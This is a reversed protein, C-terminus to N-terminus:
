KGAPQSAYHAALADITAEGFPLSMKHMASSERRDDRYARLAMVLYDKDQGGLKPTPMAPKGATDGHCRDCKAILQAVQDQGREAPRSPQAAYYAAVDRLDKDSLAGLQREMVAHRRSKGYAKLAAYLYQPDQAALTPTATDNGLGRLGHCGACPLTLARGAAVDGTAPTGRPAPTQSAFYLAIGELDVQGAGRLMSAVAPTGRDGRHYEALAALLYRLQQGALSPTGAVTSNGDAGHCSACAEADRKGREYPTPAAATGTAARPAAALGGYYAALNAIDAAALQPTMEKLVAHTRKGDAYERMAWALYAENQGVLHPIGPAAGTGDARHCGICSREALAKGAAANGAAKPTAAPPAPPAKETCAALVVALLVAVACRNM